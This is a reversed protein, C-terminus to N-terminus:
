TAVLGYFTEANTGRIAAAEDLSLQDILSNALGVVEAYELYQGGPFPEVQWEQYTRIKTTLVKNDLLRSIGVTVKAFDCHPAGTVLLLTSAMAVLVGKNEAGYQWAAYLGLLLGPILGALVM